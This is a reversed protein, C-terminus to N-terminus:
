LVYLICYWHNDRSCAFCETLNRKNNTEKYDKEIIQVLSKITRKFHFLDKITEREVSSYDMRTLFGILVDHVAM